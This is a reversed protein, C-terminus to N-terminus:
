LMGLQLTLRCAEVQNPLNEQGHGRGVCFILGHSDEERLKRVYWSRIESKAQTFKTVYDHPTAQYCSIHQDSGSTQAIQRHSPNIWYSTVLIGLMTWWSCISTTLCCLHRLLRYIKAFKCHFHPLTQLVIPLRVFCRVSRDMGLQCRHLPAALTQLCVHGQVPRRYLLRM